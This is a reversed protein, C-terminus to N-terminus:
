RNVTPFAATIKGGLWKRLTGCSTLALWMIIIALKLVAISGHSM